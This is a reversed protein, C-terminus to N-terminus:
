EGVALAQIGTWFWAHAENSTSKLLKEICIHLYRGKKMNKASFYKISIKLIM